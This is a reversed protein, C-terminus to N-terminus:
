LHQISLHYTSTTSETIKFRDDLRRGAVWMIKGGSEIVPIENKVDQPLKLGSFFDSLKKKGHMGLPHFSDGARWMRVTMPFRVRDADVYEESPHHKRKNDPLGAKAVTVVISGGTYTGEGRILFRRLSQQKRKHLMIRDSLREATWGQVVQVISGKQQEALRLISEIRIFTPEIGLDKLLRRIVSQQIVQHFKSLGTLIVENSSVIKRYAADTEHALFDSVSRLIISSNRVTEHLSPNIRKQLQPIIRNRLYNRTYEDKENSADNRFVIRKDKSYSLIDKRDACLMPRVVKGRRVPIGALGDIGGGRLLNLLVTETNDDSHHATMVADANIKKQLSDFFSYRLERASEQLSRKPKRVSKASKMRKIYLPLGYQEAATRVLKEDKDSEKGRLRYNVHAVSLTLRLSHQLEAAIDLMVMSDVGGSVALIVSDGSKLLSNVAIFEQVARILRNKKAQTM